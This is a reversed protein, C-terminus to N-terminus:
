KSYNNKERVIKAKLNTLIQTTSNQGLQIPNHKIKKQCCSNKLYM